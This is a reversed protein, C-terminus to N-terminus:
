FLFEVHAALEMMLPLSPAITSHQKNSVDNEKHFQSRVYFMAVCNFPINMANIGQEGEGGRGCALICTNLFWSVNKISGDGM